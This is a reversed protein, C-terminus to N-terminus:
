LGGEAYVFRFRATNGSATYFVQLTQGNKVPMITSIQGSSSGSSPYLHMIIDLYNEKNRLQTWEGLKAFKNLVFWGNAPAIYQSGDSGLTLDIYKNSPYAQSAIFQTDFDISHFATKPILSTVIGEAERICSGLLVEKYPNIKWTNEEANHYYELNEELNYWREYPTGIDPPTNQIFTDKKSAEGFNGTSTITIYSNYSYTVTRLKIENITYEINKLTGDLNRGNSILTKVGPLAFVTSGFFGFGNFIQNIGTIKTGDLTVIALPLSIDESLADRYIKNDSINYYWGNSTTTNGSKTNNPSTIVLRSEGRSRYVLLQTRASLTSQLSIDSDIIKTDFKKTVGDAEFGNPIYIKSGAKLTLTGENLELKIDQPIETICNTIRNYKLCNKSSIGSLRTVPTNIYEVM